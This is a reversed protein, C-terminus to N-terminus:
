TGLFGIEQNTKPDVLFLDLTRMHSKLQFLLGVSWRIGTHGAEVATTFAPPDVAIHDIGEEVTHIAFPIRYTENTNDKNTYVVYGEYNGLKATKPVNLTM